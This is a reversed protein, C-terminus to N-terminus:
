LSIGANNVLVDLESVTAAAAAISEADTVDLLLPRGGFQVAVEAGRAASRAGVLITWGQEAFQRAIRLGIGGTAGTVLATSSRMGPHGGRRSVGGCSLLTRSAARATMALDRSRDGRSPGAGVM